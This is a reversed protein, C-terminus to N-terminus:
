RIEHNLRRRRIVKSSHKILNIQRLKHHQLSQTDKKKTNPMYFNSIYGKM